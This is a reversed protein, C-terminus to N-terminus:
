RQPDPLAEVEDSGFYQFRGYWRHLDAAPDEELTVALQVDGDDTQVIKEVMAVRGDVFLDHADARRRPRLIVRDGVGIDIGGVRVHKVLTQDVGLVVAVEPDIAVGPEPRLLDPDTGGPGWGGAGRVSGHLREMVAPPLTETREILEAARADTVRARRREEDTLGLVCLSLLEDVETADFSPGASEPAIEPHDYLIIPAALAVDDSGQDGVLVPHLTHNRLADTHPLAWDPPDIVSGFAGDTVGLLVHVGVLSRRVVDERPARQGSWGTTNRVAVRLKAVHEAVMDSTVVFEGSVPEATHEARGEGAAVTRHGGAVEIPVTVTSSSEHVAFDEISVQQEHGEEWTPVPDGDVELEEVPRGDRDYMQRLDIHLFRATAQVTTGPTTRILVEASVEGPETDGLAVQAPPIVVGWQWRFRNKLASARYPFLVYGEYMVADAIQRAVEFVSDRIMPASM